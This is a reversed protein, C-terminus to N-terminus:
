LEGIEEVSLGTMQTIKTVAMGAQKLNLGLEIYGTIVKSTGYLM